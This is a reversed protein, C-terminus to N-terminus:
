RTSGIRARPAAEAIGRSYVLHHVARVALDICQPPSLELLRVKSHFSVQGAQFQKRLNSLTRLQGGATAALASPLHTSTLCGDM